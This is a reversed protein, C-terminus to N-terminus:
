GYWLGWDLINLRFEGVVTPKIAMLGIEVVQDAALKPAGDVRRGMQELEDFAEFPILIPEASGEPNAVTIKYNAGYVARAVALSKAVVKFTQEAREDHTMKLYMGRAASWDQPQGFRWRVSAFGGNNELSITGSFTNARFAGRSVGGMVNDHIEAPAPLQDLFSELRITGTPMMSPSLPAEYALIDDFVRRLAWAQADVDIPGAQDLVTSLRTRLQRSPVLNNQLVVRGTETYIRVCEQIRGANYAPAGRSIAGALVSKLMNGTHDASM